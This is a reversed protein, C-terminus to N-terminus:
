LLIAHSSTLLAAIGSRRPGPPPRDAPPQRSTARHGDGRGGAAPSGPALGIPVSLGPSSPARVGVIPAFPLLVPTGTRPCDHEVREGGEEDHGHGEHHEAALSWAHFTAAGDATHLHRGEQGHSHLWITRGGVISGLLLWPLVLVAVLIGRRSAQWRRGPSTSGM